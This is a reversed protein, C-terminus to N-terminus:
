WVARGGNGSRLALKSRGGVVEGDTANLPFSHCFQRLLNPVSRLLLKVAGHAVASALFLAVFSCCRALQWTFGREKLRQNHTRTGGLGGVVCRIKSRAAAEM